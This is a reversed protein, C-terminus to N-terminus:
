GLAGSAHGTTSGAAHPLVLAAVYVIATGFAGAWITYKTVIYDAPINRFGRPVVM